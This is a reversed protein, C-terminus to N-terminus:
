ICIIFESINYIKSVVTHADKGLISDDLEYSVINNGGGHNDWLAVKEVGADM